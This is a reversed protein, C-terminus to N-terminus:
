LFELDEKQQELVITALARRYATSRMNRVWVFIEPRTEQTQNWQQVRLMALLKAECFAVAVPKSSGYVFGSTVFGIPWRFSHLASPDEPVQLKWKGSDQQTFCSRVFSQTVTLQEQEESRSTWQSLDTLIPACVVAGEEFVGEKYAHLLIRVLCLEKDASMQHDSRTVWNFPNPDSFDKEMMAMSPFLLFKGDCIKELYEKLIKPTRPIFGQFSATAQDLTGVNQSALNVLSCEPAVGGSGQVDQTQFGKLIFPGKGVTSMICDWPPPVPVKVPRVALPRLEAARDFSSAENAMFSMYAKCDPFDFPFSPLGSNCAIWRRERLGIVHAGHLILSMWFPKIWSLPLIISWGQKAHKLLLVPCSQSFDDKAETAPMGYNTPDFHFFKLRRHHKETCLVNEPIPPSMKDSSDWLSRSDSLFIGSTEPESWLSLLKDENKASEGSVLLSSNRIDEEQLNSELRNHAESAPEAGKSPLDRPDDVTLSLIAHSPLHEARNLVCAKQLQSNTDTLPHLTKQLVQIAKSGMIELRAIHGELTFCSVCKGSEHMQKQCAFRLANFGENFAAAHLWIWLQRPSTSSGNKGSNCCGNSVDDQQVSNRDDSLFPRWMYIVPAIFHSLPNGVHYLMAYAYCVGHIVMQSHKESIDTPGSPSPLLVMRLIALISDEPGELQIPLSYSADHILAGYKLWKLIARSGRGRGHLGLPLYFGWQKVMAFRKAHWLHTRLRRTGDGSTCFGSAPNKQFEFRRRTRRSVKKKRDDEASTGEPVGGDGDGDGVKRRKVRRNRTVKHGTTRRRKSRRIRFDDGLRNSVIAHLAELEPGRSEAFKQVNLIRPPPPPASSSTPAPHGREPAM